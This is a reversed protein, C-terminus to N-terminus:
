AKPTAPAAMITERRTKTIKLLYRGLLALFFASPPNCGAAALAMFPALPMMMAPRTVTAVAKRNLARIFSKSTPSATPRNMPKTAMITRAEVLSSFGRTMARIM